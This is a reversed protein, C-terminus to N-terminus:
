EHGGEEIAEHQMEAIPVVPFFRMFLFMATLFLGFPSILTLFDWFGMSFVDYMGELHPYALTAPVIIFRELWMGVLVFLSIIVLATPNTRIRKFWLAQITVGNLFLMLIYPVAYPGNFRSSFIAAEAPDGTFWAGFIEIIYGYIVIMGVALMLMAAKEVHRMPIIGQMNFGTRMLMSFVLVMALGSFIAGAVFFPPFITHHWGPTTAIAFDLGVISHVSIVLPTALAALVFATKHLAEWHFADGRWGLALQGYFRKAFGSKARDRLAALDPMLDIYWFLLSIIGYTSIAFFDWVLPSRWQPNMIMTNPYPTIYFFFEIRGHHFLPFLGATALAFLTMAEAFRSFTSRWRKRMLLLFASIFTGAHGIGIWFILNVIGMGWVAPTDINWLGTERIAISGLTFAFLLLLIFSITFGFWWWLPTRGFIVSTIKDTVSGPTDYIPEGEVRRPPRAPQGGTKKPVTDMTSM